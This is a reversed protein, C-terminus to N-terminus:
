GDFLQDGADVQVSVAPDAPILSLASQLLCLFM